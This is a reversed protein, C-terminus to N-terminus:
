EPMGRILSSLMHDYAPQVAAWDSEPCVCYVEVRKDHGLVTTRYGHLGSGFSSSATFESKRAPGLRVDLVVPDGTEEYGSYKKEADEKAMEHVKAVPELEPPTPADSGGGGFSSAIGGMLSDALDATVRIEAPGSKITAWCPGNKGGGDAEWNEPYEFAFTGDKHNYQTFSTPAAVPASGCGNIGVFAGIAVVVGFFKAKVNPHSM